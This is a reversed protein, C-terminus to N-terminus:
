VNSFFHNCTGLLLSPALHLPNTEKFLKIMDPMQVSDVYKSQKTYM